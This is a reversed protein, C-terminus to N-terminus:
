DHYYCLQSKSSTQMGCRKGNSKRQRCQYKKGDNRQKVKEHITCYRSGKKIPTKCVLCTIKKGQKREREQKKRGEAEKDKLVQQKKVKNKEKNVEKKNKKVGEKIGKMKETDGLNLSWTTYGSLFLARQFATYQNDFANRLNITKQYMKNVPAGTLSQVYNTAASWAPNDIDMTQMEEIVKGNYNITKEANVIRRLKIGVVPSFNALELLVASEDKNYKAERQEMFKIFMNKLTSIAVGYIGSGRLITDISGSIVREKKKLYAEEDEDDGFMVAFLATQLGYFILNQAAGYYLIRSLNSMDSQMQSTNPGTIRRNKIDLAAKKIIRNYQSPTNLFNLVIKGIWSAQQQSTMDPRASQQTSQTISQFDTFAANEADKISMGDKIYKNVRNRYFAAGGTAIAINDGIQTPLFGLKLAKGVIISVQDFVNDPRAKKIAEALEAGNIDTGLGGRRQKMMDSNFIMAFDKWYQKQNAFAKGAAYINNDALNLYNVNSMQQLLSSRTNFFMVGAVSANLWNMFMNPKANSGKPRNIGTKTRHLMDELAERFDKGYAAEIKNLNEESFIIEANENFEAFYKARGVRGTADVLDIRINGTEWSPGPDVYKEQKSIINLTEAYARLEPDGMVLDVLNQQDTPTLGPIKYGHKAWLYVRIADQFTFDGDPTNKILKDKVDTFQENLAKYDNAVAQKAADIEKYARNLPRVLAQEFFDRHADGVRGKGMFNYLLGVFDEHSPPIFLRFKGKSDGRKRAKIASFRKESDIGTINELIDNFQGSMGESFKIRAQQVKRKVDFQELMNDVAQVNQLADDAFYFDNYGEGVKEAIWLAKAEATSNALGTINELPINLGNAQLFAFIAPAAEMPRATLVFMNEPGFKGQLKMAKNFLPAVKGDVVENFESFDWKYGLDTLEQYTSAYQEANLTGKTGDPKTFRILSKSTALTDDFDLVTIGVSGESNLVRGKQIAKDLIKRKGVEGKSIKEDIVGIYNDTGVERIAVINDKGLTRNNYYRQWAPSGFRYTAPMTSNYGSEKLVLDMTKPIIAVNYEKYFEALNKTTVSGDYIGQVHKLMMWNAPIMHEYELQQNPDAVTDYGDTVYKFNAARRMATKMNSNLSNLMMVMVNNDLHPNNEDKYFEIIDQVFERAEKAELESQKKVQAEAKKKGVKKTLGKIKNVFTKSSQALYGTNVETEVGGIFIKDIVNFTKDKRTQPKFTIQIEKGNIVAGNVGHTIFDEVNKFAQKRNDKKTGDEKKRSWGEIDIVNGKSDVDFRGDSIKSAGAFMPNLYAIAIRVAQKEGYKEGLSEVLQKVSDRIAQVGDKSQWLQELTKVAEGEITPKFMQLLTQEQDLIEDLVYENIDVPTKGIKNFRVVQNSYRAIIKDLGDVVHKIAGVKKGNTLTIKKGVLGPLSKEVATKLRDKTYDNIFPKIRAGIYPLAAFVETFTDSDMLVMAESFMVESLGDALLDFSRGQPLVQRAAQSSMVQLVRTHTGRHLQSINSSKKYLNPDDSLVGYKEFFYNDDFDKIRKLKLNKGRKIPEFFTDRVEKLGNNKTPRESQLVQPLGTANGKTEPDIVLDGNSDFVAKGTADRLAVGETYHKGFVYNVFFDKGLKKVAMQSAKVDPKSLNGPKPKVGFLEQIKAEGIKKLDALSMGELKGAKHLKTYEDVLYDHVAKSGQFGRRTLEEHLMVNEKKKKDRKKKAEEKQIMIDEPSLSDNQSEVANAVGEEQLSVQINGYKPHNEVFEQLRMDLMKRGRIEANFYGMVGGKFGLDFGKLLGVAGRNKIKKSLNKPDGTFQLQLDELDKTDFGEILGADKLKILRDFVIGQMMDAAVNAALERDIDAYDLFADNIEKYVGESALTKGDLAKDEQDTNVKGRPMRVATIDTGAGQFSNWKQIHQVANGADFKTWDRGVMQTKKKFAKGFISGINSWTSINNENFDSVTYFKMVDSLNAMWEKYYDADSNKLGRYRLSFQLQAVKYIKKLVPDSTSLLEKEIAEQMDMIEDLSMDNQILHLGEHHFVNMSAIDGDDIRKMINEDITWADNNLTAASTENDWLRRIDLIQQLVKPEGHKAHQIFANAKADEATLGKEQFEKITNSIDEATNLWKDNKFFKQFYENAEKKDKFRKFKKGKFTGENSDNIYQALSADNLYQSKYVQKAINDQAKEYAAEADTLKRENQLTEVISTTIGEGKLKKQSAKLETLTREARKRKVLLDITAQKQDTNMKNYQDTNNIIDEIAYLNDIENEHEEETLVQDELAQDLQKKKANVMARAQKPNELVLARFEKGGTAAVKGSATLFPTTLFAQAAGEAMKLVNQESFMSGGEIYGTADAVGSINLAEQLSETVTEVGTAAYLGKAGKSLLIKKFRGKLADQVVSRPIFKAGKAIVFVNSVIDLSAAKAGNLVAPGFDVEGNDIVQVIARTKAKDPLQGFAEIAEKDELNPFSKRAAEIQASETAIGGAEQAFTPYMFIGGLMQTIQTGVMKQFEDTTVQPNFMSEDFVKAPDLASIKKQFWASKSVGGQIINLQEPIKGELEKIRDGVTGEYVVTTINDKISPKSYKVIEENLSGGDKIKQKLEGLESKQENLSTGAAIINRYENDGKLQQTLGVSMGHVIDGLADGVGPIKRIFPAVTLYKDEAELYYKRNIASGQIDKGGYKSTVAANVSRIVKQYEPSAKILEQNKKKVLAILEKNAEERGEYSNINHKKSLRSTQEAAYAKLDEETSKVVDKYVDPNQMMEYFMLSQHEELEAGTLDDVKKASGDENTFSTEEKETNKITASYLSASIGNQDEGKKYHEQIFSNIRGAERKDSGFMNGYFKDFSFEETTTNGYKDPPSTITIYDGTVGTEEFTFGLGGFRTKLKKIAVEETERTDKRTVQPLESSGDGLDLGTSSSKKAQNQVSFDELKGMESANPNQQKFIDVHKQEVNMYTGDELRFKIM